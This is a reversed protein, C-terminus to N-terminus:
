LVAIKHAVNLPRMLGDLQNYFMSCTSQFGYTAFVRSHMSCLALSDARVPKIKKVMIQVNTLTNAIDFSVFLFFFLLLFLLM